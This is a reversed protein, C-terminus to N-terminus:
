KLENKKNRCSNCTKYRNGLRDFGFDIDNHYYCKCCSCRILTDDEKHPDNDIYAKAKIRCKACTKYRMNRKNMEFIKDINDNHYHYKCRNCATYDNKNIPEILKTQTILNAFFVGCIGDM